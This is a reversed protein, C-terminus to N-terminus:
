QGRPAGRGDLVAAAADRAQADIEELPMRRELVAYLELARRAAREAPQGNMSLLTARQAALLSFIRLKDTSGLLVLVTAGDVAELTPALPGVLEIETQQVLELAQEFRRENVLGTIRAVFQSLQEILRRVFDRQVLSM